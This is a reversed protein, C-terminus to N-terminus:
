RNNGLFFVAILGPGGHAGMVPNLDNLIISKFNYKSKIKKILYKADDFCGAHTIGITQKELNVAREGITDVLRNLANIRGRVKDCMVIKGNNDAKLIPKINLLKGAFAIASPIRGGRKLYDLDDVIFEHIMNLKNNQIWTTIDDFTKGVKKLFVAYYVLLGQGLSGSLSDIVVVKRDKYKEKLYRAASTGASYTGSLAGSFSIYIIDNGNKLIPEFANIFQSENALSTKVSCGMKLMDYFKLSDILNYDCFYKKDDIFFSLPIVKIDYKDIINQPLDASSDTM